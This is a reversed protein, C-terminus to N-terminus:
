HAQKKLLSVAGEGLHLLEEELQQIYLVISESEAELNKLLVEDGAIEEELRKCEEELRERVRKASVRNLLRKRDQREAEESGM